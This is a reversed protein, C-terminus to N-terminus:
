VHFGPLAPARPDQEPNNWILTRESTRQAIFTKLVVEPVISPDPRLPQQPREGVPPSRHLPRATIGSRNLTLDDGGTRGSGGELWAPPTHGGRPSRVQQKM